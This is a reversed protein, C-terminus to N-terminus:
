LLYAHNPESCSVLVRKEVSGWLAAKGLTLTFIDSFEVHSPIVGQSFEYGLKSVSKKPVRADTLDRGFLRRYKLTGFEGDVNWFFERVRGIPRHYDHADFHELNIAEVLEELAPEWQSGVLNILKHVGRVTVEDNWRDHQTTPRNLSEKYDLWRLYETEADSLQQRPSVGIPLKIALGPVNAIVANASAIAQESCAIAIEVLGAEGFRNAFQVWSEISRTPEVGEGFDVEQLRELTLANQLRYRWISGSTSLIAVEDPLIMLHKPALDDTPCHGIWADWWTRVVSVQRQCTIFRTDFEDQVCEMIHSAIVGQDLILDVQLGSSHRLKINNPAKLNPTVEPFCNKFAVQEKVEKWKACRCITRHIEALAELSPYVTRESSPLGEQFVPRLQLPIITQHALIGRGPFSDGWPGEIKVDAGALFWAVFLLYLPAYAREHALRNDELAHRLKARIVFDNPSLCEIVLVYSREHLSSGEVFANLFLGTAEIVGNLTIAHSDAFHLELTHNSNCM